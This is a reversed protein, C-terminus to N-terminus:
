GGNLLAEVKYLTEESFTFYCLTNVIRKQTTSMNKITKEKMSM